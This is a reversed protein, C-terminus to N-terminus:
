RRLFGWRRIVLLPLAIFGMTIAMLVLTIAAGYGFGLFEFAQDFIYIPLFLTANGPGGDTLVYAPVFNVQLTLIVDRAALLLLLPALQPLTIYRLTQWPSAGDVAAAAYVSPDLSRRAALVVLFAEGVPFLMMIVIAGRAGWTTGLWAPTPLGLAGLMGNMPGYLPNFVWLFTLALVIDPVVTPVYVAARYWRGLRRPAALLLGMGTAVLLRLPVALAAFILSARLSAHFFPDSGMRRFNAVGNFRPDGLGTHDTFAYYFTTLAPILLLLVVGLAFPATYWGAGRM